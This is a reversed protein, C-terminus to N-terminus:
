RYGTRRGCLIAAAVVLLDGLETKEFCLERGVM